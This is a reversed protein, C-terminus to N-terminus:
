AAYQGSMERKVKEMQFDCGACYEVNKRMPTSKKVPVIGEPIITFFFRQSGLKIAAVLQDTVAGYQRCCMFQQGYFAVILKQFPQVIVFM